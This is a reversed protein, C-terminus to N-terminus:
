HWLWDCGGDDWNYMSGFVISAIGLLPSNDWVVGRIEKGRKARDWYAIRRGNMHLHFAGFRGAIRWILWYLRGGVLQYQHNNFTWSFCKSCIADSGQLIVQEQGSLTIPPSFGSSSLRYHTANCLVDFERHSSRLQDEFFVEMGDERSFLYLDKDGRKLTFRVLKRAEDM